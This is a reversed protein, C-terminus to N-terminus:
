DDMEMEVDEKEARREGFVVEVPPLPKAPTRLEKVDPTSLVTAATTGQPICYQSHVFPLPLNKTQRVPGEPMVLVTGKYQAVLDSPLRTKMVPHPTILEHQVLSALGLRVTNNSLHRTAFPFVTHHANIETYAQRASKMKLQYSKNVDRQYIFPKFDTNKVTGDGTTLCINLQYVQNAEIEFDYKDLDQVLLEDLFRNELDKGARLVFRKMPSSYTGEVPQCRFYAAVETIVRTIESARVGPRLMRLAAEYAFYTAAVVDAAKGTTPESPNISVITTHAATAIYGDIHVGTEIKVVDGPKLTVDQDYLPSFYQVYNNLTICTPVAIGREANKYMNRTHAEILDDCYQCLDSVSIGTAVKEVVLPMIGNLIDAAHQYKEQVERSTLQNDAEFRSAPYAVSVEMNTAM